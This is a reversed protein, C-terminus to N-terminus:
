LVARVAPERDVRASTRADRWRRHRAFAESASRRESAGPSQKELLTTRITIQDCRPKALGPIAAIGRHKKDIREILRDSEAVALRDPDFRPARGGGGQLAISDGIM